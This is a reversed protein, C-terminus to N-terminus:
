AGATAQDPMAPTRATRGAPLGRRMERLRGLPLRVRTANAGDVGVGSLTAGCPDFATPVRTTDGAETIAGDPDILRQAQGIAFVQWAAAAHDSGEGARSTTSAFIMIEAGNRAYTAHISPTDGDALLAINGRM